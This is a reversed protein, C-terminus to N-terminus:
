HLSWDLLGWPHSTTGLVWAAKIISMRGTSDGGPAGQGTFGSSGQGDWMGDGATHFGHGYVCFIEFVMPRFSKVRFWDHQQGVEGEPPSRGGQKCGEEIILERFVAYMAGVRGRGWFVWPTQRLGVATQSFASGQVGQVQHNSARPLWGQGPRNMGTPGWQRGFESLIGATRVFSWQRYESAAGPNGVEGRSYECSASWFGLTCAYKSENLTSNYVTYTSPNMRHV